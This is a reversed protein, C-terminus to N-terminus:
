RYGDTLQACFAEIAVAAEETHTALLMHPADLWCVRSRPQVAVIEDVSRRRVLRDARGHLCLIPSAIDELDMVDELDM